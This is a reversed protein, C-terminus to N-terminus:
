DARVRAAREMQRRVVQEIEQATPAPVQAPQEDSDPAPPPPEVVVEFDNIVVAM